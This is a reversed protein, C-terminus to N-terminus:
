GTHDNASRLSGLLEVARRKREALREIQLKSAPDGADGLRFIEDEYEEIERSIKRRVAVPYVVAFAHLAAILARLLSM